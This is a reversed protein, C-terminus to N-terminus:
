AKRVPLLMTFTSGKGEESEVEIKGKHAEVIMKSQYLGIGMGQKKTTKFPHFLSKETFEKSMGAGNDRVSLEVWDGRRRTAVIIEGGKSMAEHANLVFNIFVKQIQDADIMAKPISKLEQTISVGSSGDLGALAARVTENVDTEAPTLELKQSLSVLRSSMGNIKELSQAITRLADARFEPNDFHIPMNQMTLSLKSALNKLDHVFFASMTQFAEMEKVERLRESLMLNLLSSAAQDGITKLLDFDEVSFADKGLGGLTMLGIFRDGAMLPICYRTKLKEFFDVDPWDSFRAIHAKSYDFDLPIHERPLIRAFRAVGEQLSAFEDPHGESFVTSGGMVATGDKEDLLWVTVALADFASCVIRTTVACLEGIDTVSTTSETFRKWEKRYDYLPRRFHRSVFGRVKRRARDSLLLIVCGLLALFIFFTQFALGQGINFHLAVKVLIGVLVFYVGVFLVTFSNYLLSESLYFDVNLRRTRLLSKFMLITGIILAGANVVAFQMNLANYLITQSATYIRVGFLSGLGFIIFKIQWRMHGTSTRLTKELNALILIASALVILHFLYGSWGLRILRFPPIFLPEGTFFSNSFVILLVFPAVFFTVIIVKWRGIFDGYNARSFSLAFLLWIGPLFATVYSRVFICRVFESMSEASLCLSTFITEAGLAIMGAALTLHVFSRRDRVLVFAALAFSFVAAILPLTTNFM